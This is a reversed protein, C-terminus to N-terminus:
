AISRQTQARWLPTISVLAALLAPNYLYPWLVPNFLTFFLFAATVYPAMGMTTSGGRHYLAATSLLLVAQIPKLLGVLKHRWFMGSFGIMRAWTQDMDWRLRPYLDNDNFWRWVGFIFLQPAWILFPAILSVGLLAAIGVCRLVLRWGGLRMWRLLAFPIIVSVLPTAAVCLGLMIASMRVHDTSLLVLLAILLAWQVPATTALSWSLASPQLFLWAWILLGTVSLGTVQGTTHALWALALGVSLEAVLNTIRLDAGLLYPPLYALWTLPLYTLPVEWPMAYMAYPSQGALLHGIAGQVLPLMDGHAPDIPVSAFSMVRVISGLLAAGGVLWLPHPPWRIALALALLGCGAICLGLVSAHPSVMLLWSRVTALWALLLLWTLLRQFGLGGMGTVRPLALDVRSAVAVWSLAIGFLLLSTGTALKQGMLASLGYVHLSGTM